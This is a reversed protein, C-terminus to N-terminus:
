PISVAVQSSYGSQVGSAVSTVVYFYQENALVTTDSYNLVASTTSGIQTYPGGSVTGRYVDYGTVSASPSKAWNLAVSHAAAAVGDGTVAISLPSNTANSAVTVNGSVAGAKTPAFKVTLTTAQGPSLVVNAAGSTSVGTVGSTVSSITVSANGTNTLNVTASESSGVTVNGFAETTASASLSKATAVGTGSTPVTVTSFNGAITASGSVAGATKPAFAVTLNVTTGVALSLPLKLGSVSFGTGSATVASVSLASTGSNKLQITQSNTSGVAVSGFAASAPVASVTATASAQAYGNMWLVVDKNAANSLFTISGSNGGAVTPAFKVTFTLSQGVAITVPLKFGTMTISPSSFYKEASFVIPANGTNTMKIPMSVSSGVNVHGFQVTNPALVLRGQTAGSAPQAPSGLIALLLVAAVIWSRLARRSAMFRRFENRPFRADGFQRSDFDRYAQSNMGRAYARRLRTEVPGLDCFPVAFEPHGRYLFRESHLYLSSAMERRAGLSM